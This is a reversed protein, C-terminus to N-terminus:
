RALVLKKVQVFSGAELRYFYIGSALGRFDASFMYSGADYVGDALTMVNRGLLDYVLLRLRSRGPVGVTISTVPNFPNPFNQSLNFATPIERDRSVGTAPTNTDIRYCSDHGPWGTAPHLGTVAEVALGTGGKAIDFYRYDGGVYDKMGTFAGTGDFSSLVAPGYDFEVINTTEHLRIQFNLLTANVSSCCPPMNKWQVVFVRAPATGETATSIVGTTGGTYLDSWWPGLVKTPRDTTSMVVRFFGGIQAATSLGRVSGRAGTGFEMWGNTSIQVSDYFFRDYQFPFPLAMISQVDDGSPGPAGGSIETYPCGLKSVLFSSVDAASLVTMSGRLTDDGPAQDGSLSIAELTYVGTDPPNFGGAFTVDREEALNMGATRRTDSYLETQGRLIRYQVNFSDPHAVSGINRFRARIPTVTLGLDSTAGDAPAVLQAAKIDLFDPPLEGILKREYVGNGHTAVRLARNSPSIALDAVIVADPLGEGFASWTSGADTSAYVGMDNGAYVINTHLPDIAVASTPMDPLSGSIDAWSAGADISKFLHGSGFGGFAAYVVRSDAPDVVVDLPYRDPLTGTVDSWSAGGNVTRFLRARASVPAVGVFVTDPSTPAIAMSLAPDGDLMIGSNTVSWTNGQNTTKYVRQNAFYLTSPNSRSLAFPSNWGGTGGFGMCTSFSVGRNDSRCVSSGNRNDAYVIQDNTPDVATWGVEDSVGRSWVRNGHYLYGPIHDQSQTVAFLSDQESNSFGNYLQGTQMGDGVSAFTFGFDTTRYVGDDNVVYVIEPNQPDRAFAHNDSYLGGSSNFSRGGDLSSGASVAAHIIRSSDAPHVAVFHSYWGQQGFSPGTSQDSLKSWSEGFNTTRWLAGIGTTSDAVSAYVVDPHAEYVDLLTKGTSCNSFVVEWTTGGDLTRWIASLPDLNGISVMVRDTDASNIAIDEAMTLSGYDLLGTWSAGADTSKLLGETTGAWLTRPNLPNAKIVQVGREQNSTWDLSKTWTTGGDTTKLIGIGYSGRTTRIVLGGLAAQYRYVEGTGLYVTNSDTPDVVIASIGLAPYGLKVQRWDAGLGGTYSKWLGGSASGVYVTAPNMPNLAVSICRGQLNTPGIPDWTAGAALVSSIERVQRKADLYARYYKASPIDAGPYARSRTWFDLSPMAGTREERDAEPSSTDPSRDIFRNPGGLGAFIVAFAFLTTFLNLSKKM